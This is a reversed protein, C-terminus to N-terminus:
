YYINATDCCLLCNLWWVQNDSTFIRVIKATIFVGLYPWREVLQALLCSNITLTDIVLIMSLKVVLLCSIVSKVEPKFRLWDDGSNNFCQSRGTHRHKNCSIEGVLWFFFFFMDVDLPSHHNLDVKLADHSSSQILNSIFTQYVLTIRSVDPPNLSESSFTSQTKYDDRFSRVVSYM